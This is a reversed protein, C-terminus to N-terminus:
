VTSPRCITRSRVAVAWINETARGPILKVVESHQQMTNVDCCANTELDTTKEIARGYFEQLEDRLEQKDDTAITHHAAQNTTQNAIQNM